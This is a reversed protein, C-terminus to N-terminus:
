KKLKDIIVPSILKEWELYGLSSPHLGDTIFFRRDQYNQSHSFLDIITLSRKNAEGTLVNNYDQIKNGKGYLEPYKMAEPSVTYDPILIVFINKSNPMSKQMRDLLTQINTRFTNIDINQFSDNAGILLTAFDPRQAEIVQLEYSIADASTYGSVSPNQLLKTKLGSENLSKVLLNPWRDEDQVGNGITYSDGVPIYRLVGDEQKAYKPSNNEIYFYFFGSILLFIILGFIPSLKKRPFM